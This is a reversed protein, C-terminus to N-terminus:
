EVRVMREEWDPLRFITEMLRRNSLDVEELRTELAWVERRKDPKLLLRSRRRPDVKAVYKTGDRGIAVLAVV